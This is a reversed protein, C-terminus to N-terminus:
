QEARQDFRWLGAERTARYADDIESPWPRRAIETSRREGNRGPAAALHAPRYQGMITLLM